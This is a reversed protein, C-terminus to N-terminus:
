LSDPRPAGKMAAAQREVAQAGRTVADAVGNRVEQAHRTLEDVANEVQAGVADYQGSAQRRLTRGAAVVRQRVESTADPALWLAVAMGVGAGVVAGILLGTMLGTPGADETYDQM